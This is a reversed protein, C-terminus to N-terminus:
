GRARARGSCLITLWTVVIGLVFGWVASNLFFALWELVPSADNAVSADWMLMMPQFLLDALHSTLKEAYSEPLSPNDFRAMGRSFSFLLTFIALAAHLVTFMFAFRLLRVADRSM